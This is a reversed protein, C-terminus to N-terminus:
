AAGKLVDSLRRAVIMDESPQLTQMVIRLQDPGPQPKSLLTDKDWDVAAVHSRNVKTLVDIPPNGRRLKQACEQVTLPFANEDWNVTITPYGGGQSMRTDTTVGPYTQLM